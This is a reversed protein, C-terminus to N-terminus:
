KGDSQMSKNPVKMLYKLMLEMLSAQKSLDKTDGVIKFSLLINQVDILSDHYDKLQRVTRNYLYFFISAIFETLIGSGASIYGIYKTEGIALFGIVLGTGILIFGVAGAAIASLFSNNTHEKVLKYYAELNSINIEVLRDFYSLRDEKKGSISPRSMIRRKANLLDLDRQLSSIKTSIILPFILTFLLGYGIMSMGAFTVAKESVNGLRNAIGSGFFLVTVGFMILSFILLYFTKKKQQISKIQSELEAIEIEINEMFDTKPETSTKKVNNTEDNKM